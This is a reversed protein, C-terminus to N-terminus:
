VYYMTSTYKNDQYPSKNNVNFNNNVKLSPNIGKPQIIASGIKYNKQNTNNNSSEETAKTNM